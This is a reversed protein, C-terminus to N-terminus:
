CTGAPACCGCGRPCRTPLDPYLHVANTSVIVDVGRELLPAGLAEDLRELRKEDKRYRLLRFAVLPDDRFKELAVRLFKPSSDVIVVGARADFM